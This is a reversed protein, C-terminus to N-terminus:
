IRRIGFGMGLRKGQALWAAARQQLLTDRADRDGSSWIREIAQHDGRVDWVDDWLAHFRVINSEQPLIEGYVSSLLWSLCTFCAYQENPFHRKFFDPAKTFDRECTDIDLKEGEPIHVGLCHDGQRVSTLKRKHFPTFPPFHVSTREFQLRGLRFIKLRCHNIIWGIEGLGDVGTKARYHEAWIRIDSFTADFVDSAIGMRQYDAEAQCAMALAVALVWAGGASNNSRLARRCHAVNGSKRMKQAKEWLGESDGMYARCAALIQSDSLHLRVGMRRIQEMFIVM